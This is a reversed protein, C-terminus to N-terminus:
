LILCSEIKRSLGFGFKQGIGQWKIHAMQFILGACTHINQPNCKSKEKWPAEQMIKSFILCTKYRLLHSFQNSLNCRGHFIKFCVVEDVPIQYVLQTCVCFACVWDRERERERLICMSLLGSCLTSNLLLRPTKM